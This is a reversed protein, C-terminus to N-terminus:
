DKSEVPEQLMVRNRGGTKALYMATDARGFLDLVSEGPVYQTLGISVTVRREVKAIIGLRVETLTRIREVTHLADNLTVGPLLLLFEEGGYRGFVDERRVSNQALQAFSRLVEDGALHGIEDNIRKFHDLDIVALCLNQDTSDAQHKQDQLAAMMYRRNFSGTLEDRRAHEEINEMKVSVMYLSRYLRRVRTALMAFGPLTIGLAGCHLLGTLLFKNDHMFFYYALHAALNGALAFIVVALLTKERLRFACSMIILLAFPSFIIQSAPELYLTLAMVALMSFAMHPSLTKDGARLNLGALFGIAFVLWGLFMGAAAVYVSRFLVQGLFAFVLLALSYSVPILSAQGFRRLRQLQRSDDYDKNHHFFHMVWLLASTSPWRKSHTARMDNTQQM